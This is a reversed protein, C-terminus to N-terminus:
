FSSFMEVATSHIVSALTRIKVFHLVLQWMMGYFLTLSSFPVKIVHYKLFVIDDLDRSM